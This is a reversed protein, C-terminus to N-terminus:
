SSGPQDRLGRSLLAADNERIIQQGKAVAAAEFLRSSTEVAAEPTMSVTIGDPGNLQVEGDVATVNTPEDYPEHM